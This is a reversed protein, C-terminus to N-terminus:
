ALGALAAIASPTRPLARGTEHLRRYEQPGLEEEILARHQEYSAAVVPFVPAGMQEHWETLIGCVEAAAELRGEAHLAMVVVVLAAAAHWQADVGELVHMATLCTRIAGRPDGRAIQVEAIDPLAGGVGWSSGVEEFLAMARRAGAEFADLDGRIGALRGRRMETIALGGLAGEAEYLASSEALRQQAGELDGALMGILGEFGLADARLIPGANEDALVAAFNETASAVDGQAWRLIGLTLLCGSRPGDGCELARQAWRLGEQWMGRLMWYSGLLSVLRAGVEPEGTDLSWRLAARLDDYRDDLMLTLDTDPAGSTGRRAQDVVAVQHRAHRTRAIDREGHDALREGVVSRVVEYMVWGRGAHRILGRDSLEALGEELPSGTLDAVAAADAADFPGASVSLARLLRQSWPGLLSYSWEVADTMTRHREDLDRPGTGLVELGGALEAAITAVPLDRVRRAALEVALPLNDLRACIDGVAPDSGAHSFSTDAARARQVFLETAAADSLPALAMVHEGYVDLQVQSTVLCTLDPCSGLLDVLVPAHEVVQEFNDLLLLTPARRLAAVALQYRDGIGTVSVATAIRVRIDDATRATALFVPVVAVDYDQELRTALEVAFRTKGVGPPGTITMLRGPGGAAALLQLGATVETERGLLLHMPRPVASARASGQAQAPSLRAPSLFSRAAAVFRDHEEADIGLATAMAEALQRSPRREDSEIKRVTVTACAVRDALEAQTLDVARRRTRVWTGFSATRTM